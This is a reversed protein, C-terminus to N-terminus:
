KSYSHKCWYWLLHFWEVSNCSCIWSDSISMCKLCDWRLLFHIHKCHCLSRISGLLNQWPYLWGFSKSPLHSLIETSKCCHYRSCQYHFAKEFSCKCLKQWLSWLILSCKCHDKKPDTGTCFGRL